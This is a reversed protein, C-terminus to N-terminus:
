SKQGKEKTMRAILAFQHGNSNISINARHLLDVGLIVKNKIDLQKKGVMLNVFTKAFQPQKHKLQLMIFLDIRVVGLICDDRLETTSSISVTRSKDLSDPNGGLQLFM